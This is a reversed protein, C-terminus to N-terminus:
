GPMRFDREVRWVGDDGRIAPRVTSTRTLGSKRRESVLEDDAFQLDMRHRSGGEVWLEFHIHQPVGGRPYSAPRITDLAYEGRENTRVVACLRANNEDEGGVSYYGEADTQYAFVFIGALPAGSEDLVRGRVELPEGPEGEPVMSAQWGTARAGGCDGRRQADAPAAWLVFFIACLTGFVPYTSRM